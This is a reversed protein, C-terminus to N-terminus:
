QTAGQQTASQTGPVPGATGLEEGTVWGFKDRCIPGIGLEISEGNTLERGCCSCSGTRAGYAKAAAHPDAAAAIVRDRTPDDCVQAPHFKGDTVKGIYAGHQKVYLSGANRGTAAARSFVFTELRLKPSKIGNSQASAFAAEIADVSMHAAVKEEFKGTGNCGFCPRGPGWQGSGACKPCDGEKTGVCATRNLGTGNCAFCNGVTRGTYGVFKGRGHCKSCFVDGAKVEAVDASADLEIGFLASLDVGDLTASM